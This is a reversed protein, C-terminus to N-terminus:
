RWNIFRSLITLAKLQKPESKSNEVTDVLLQAIRRERPGAKRFLAKPNNSFKTLIKRGTNCLAQSRGKFGAREAAAAMTLGSFYLELFRIQRESYRRM